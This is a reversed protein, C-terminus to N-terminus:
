GPVDEVEAVAAVNEAGVLPGGADGVGGVGVGGEGSAVVHVGVGGIKEVDEGDWRGVAEDVLGDEGEASKSKGDGSRGGMAEEVFDSGLLGLAAGVGVVDADELGAAVVTEAAPGRIRLEEM